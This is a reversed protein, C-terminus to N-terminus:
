QIGPIKRLIWQFVHWLWVALDFALVVLLASLLADMAIIYSFSNMIGWFYVIATHIGEPLSGSPLFSLLFSVFGNFLVLIFSTIM